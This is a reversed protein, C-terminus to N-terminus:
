GYRHAEVLELQPQYNGWTSPASIRSSRLTYHHSLSLDRMEKHFLKKISPM